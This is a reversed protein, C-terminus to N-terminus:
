WFMSSCNLKKRSLGDAYNKGLAFNLAINHYLTLFCQQSFVFKSGLYNKEVFEFVNQYCSSNGLKGM